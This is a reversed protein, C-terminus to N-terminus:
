RASALPPRHHPTRSCGDLVVAASSQRGASSGAAAKMTASMRLSRWARARLKPVSETSAVRKQLATLVPVLLSM